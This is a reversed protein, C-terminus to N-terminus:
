NALFANVNKIECTHRRACKFFMPVHLLKSGDGERKEGGEGGQRGGEVLVRLSLSQAGKGVKVAEDYLDDSFIPQALDRLWAQRSPTPPFPCRAVPLPFVRFANLPYLLALSLSVSLYIHFNYVSM